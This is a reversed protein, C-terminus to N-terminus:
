NSVQRYAFMYAMDYQVQEMLTITDQHEQETEDCFGTIFDSSLSVNPIIKKVTDILELYSIM